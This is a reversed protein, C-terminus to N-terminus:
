IHLRMISHISRHLSDCLHTNICPHCPTFYINWTKSKALFFTVEFKTQLLVSRPLMKRVRATSTKIEIVWAPLFLSDAFIEKHTRWSVFTCVILSWFRGIWIPVRLIQHDRKHAHISLIFGPGFFFTLPSFNVSPKAQSYSQKPQNIKSLNAESGKYIFHLLVWSCYTADLTSFIPSSM